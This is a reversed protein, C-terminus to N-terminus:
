QSVSVGEQKCIVELQNQAIGDSESNNWLSRHDGFRLINVIQRIIATQQGRDSSSLVSSFDM